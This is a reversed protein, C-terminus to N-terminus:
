QKEKTKRTAEVEKLFAKWQPLLEEIKQDFAAEVVTAYGKRHGQHALKQYTNLKNQRLLFTAMVLGDGRQGDYRSMANAISLPDLKELEKKDREEAIKKKAKELDLFPAKNDIAKSNLDTFARQFIEAFGSWTWKEHTLNGIRDTAQLLMYYFASFDKDDAVVIMNMSPSYVGLWDTEEDFENRYFTKFTERDPLILVSVKMDTLPYFNDEIFDVFGEAALGYIALKAPALDSAFDFHSTAFENNKSWLLRQARERRTYFHIKRDFLEQVKASEQAAEKNRGLSDLIEKRLVHFDIENERANDSNGQKDCYKIAGDIAVIAEKQNKLSFLAFAKNALAIPNDSELELAKEAYELSKEVEGIRFEADSLNIFLEKKKGKPLEGRAAALYDTIAARIRGKLHNINARHLHCETTDYGHAIARTYDRGANNLENQYYRAEARVFYAEGLNKDSSIAYGAQREAEEFQGAKLSAKAEKLDAKSTLACGGAFCVLGLSLGLTLTLLSKKYEQPAM